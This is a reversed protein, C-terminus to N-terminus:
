FTNDRLKYILMRLWRDALRLRPLLAFWMRPLSRGSGPAHWAASDRARGASPPVLVASVIVTSCALTGPRPCDLPLAYAHSRVSGLDLVSRRGRVTRAMPPSGHFQERMQNAARRFEEGLEDVLRSLERLRIM